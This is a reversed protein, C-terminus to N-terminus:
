GRTFFCMTPAVEKLVALLEDRGKAQLHDVGRYRTREVLKRGNQDSVLRVQFM